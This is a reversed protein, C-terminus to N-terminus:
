EPAEAVVPSCGRAIISLKKEKPDLLCIQDRGLLFVVLDGPLHTAERITWAVFPTELAYHFREGTKKNEGKIGVNAWFATVFEWDSSSVFSLIPEESFIRSYSREEVPARRSFSARLVRFDPGMPTERSLCLDFAGPGSPRAVITDRDEPKPIEAIHETKGAMTREVAKGDLSITYLALGPPLPLEAASVVRLDSVLSFKTQTGYWTVLVAYSGANVLFAALVSLLIARRVKRLAFYVFPLEIAVTLVFAVWLMSHFWSSVTDITPPGSLWHLARHAVLMSTYNAAIMSIVAVAKSVRFIWGIFLGEALGIFANGIFLHTIGIWMLPTGANAFATAPLLVLIAPFLWSLRVPQLRVRFNEFAFAM